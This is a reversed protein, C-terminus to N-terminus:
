WRSHWQIAKDTKSLEPRYVPASSPTRLCKVLHRELEPLEKAIDQMASTIQIGVNKRANEAQKDLKPKMKIYVRHSASITLEAEYEKQLAIRFSELEQEIEDLRRTDNKKKAQKREMLLQRVARKYERLHNETLTEDQSYVDASGKEVINNGEDSPETSEPKRRPKSGELERSKFGRERVADVLELPDFKYDPKELLSVIYRIKMSDGFTTLKGKFKVLWNAGIRVFVNPKDKISPINDEISKALSPETLEDQSAAVAGPKQMRNWLSRNIQRLQESLESLEAEPMGEPPQRDDEDEMKAQIHRGPKHYFLRAYKNIFENKYFLEFDIQNRLARYAELLEGVNEKFVDREWAFLSLDMDEYEDPTLDDKIMHDYHARRAQATVEDKTTHSRVVAVLTENINHYPLDSGRLLEDLQLYISRSSVIRPFSKYQEENEIKLLVRVSTEHISYPFEESIHVPYDSRIPNFGFPIEYPPEGNEEEQSNSVKVSSLNALIKPSFPVFQKIKPEQGLQNVTIVDQKALAKISFDGTAAPYKRVTTHSCDPCTIGILTHHGNTM